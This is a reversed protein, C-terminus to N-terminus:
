ICGMVEWNLLQECHSGETLEQFVFLMDKGNKLFARIVNTKILM